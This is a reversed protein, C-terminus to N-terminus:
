ALETSSEVDVLEDFSRSAATYVAPDIVSKDGDEFVAGFGGDGGDRADGQTAAEFDSESAVGTYGGRL